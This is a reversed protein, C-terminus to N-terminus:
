KNNGHKFINKFFNKISETMDKFGIKHNKVGCVIIIICTMIGIMLNYYSEYILKMIEKEYIQYDEPEQIEMIPGFLGENPDAPDKKPLEYKKALKTLYIKERIELAYLVIGVILISLIFLMIFTHINGKEYYLYCVYILLLISTILPLILGSIFWKSHPYGISMAMVLTSIGLLIAFLIFLKNDRFMGFFFALLTAILYAFTCYVNIYHLNKVVKKLCQECDM